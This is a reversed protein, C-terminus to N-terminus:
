NLKPNTTKKFEISLQDGDSIEEIFGVETNNKILKFRTGKLQNLDLKIHRFIDQFIFPEDNLKEFVITDNPYVLSERKVKEGNRYVNVLNKTLQVPQNNFHVTILHDQKENLSSLLEDITITEHRKLELHDNNKIEDTLRLPRGKRIVEVMQNFLKYEHQNLRVRFPHFKYTLEEMGCYKLVDELTMSPNCIIRDGDSLRHTAPVTAGNVSVPMPIQYTDQNIQVQLEPLDGLVDQVTYEPTTGDIGKIVELEDNHKITDQVSAEQGNIKITPATGLTGPLTIDKGNLDIMIAMGPKGYLKNLQIGAALLCDGITLQKLDFLRITRQNVTVSIYKVPNQKAAIAIGIPTIFEPSNPLQNRDTLSQIADIGRIAVRNEPLSLQEALKKPLEPTLSGGGVLMVAQPPKENLQLIENSISQALQSISEDVERVIEEYEFQHAIGLIDEFTVTSQNNLARKVEEARHFDLLFKESVAETIEDGAKPVMGYATITGEKTIAIDSTGAGIDVLAVNLRRMSEPILVQIAAIPELTLADMELDARKLASLLSDVVVKPLFTAIIEVKATDGQQDVLSGIESGDLYYHLVSYGVCYYNTMENSEEEEALKYQAQQVATLELHLIDENTMLPQELITTEYHARKTKLARGAAAVCVKTLPGHKAELKAKVKSIVNSVKLINHIQGDLMSREEHEEAIIDLVKYHQDTQELMIGVVSRTGIDLAFLKQSM